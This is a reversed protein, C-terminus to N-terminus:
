SGQLIMFEVYYPCQEVPIDLDCALRIPPRPAFLIARDITFRSATLYQSEGLVIDNAATARDVYM